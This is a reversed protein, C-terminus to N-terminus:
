TVAVYGAVLIVDELLAGSTLNTVDGTAPLALPEVFFVILLNNAAHAGTSFEIGGLRLTMYAFGVGMLARTLFADPSFDFHAASFMLATFGLLVAPQRTFAATQRLLWGRFMLEEAAAAPILLLASLGYALRGGWDPSIHLIPIPAGRLTMLRDVAVLPAMALAALGIGLFLLRWRIKAAVTVYHHFPHGALVAALAVFVLPFAGDTVTSELLRLLTVNLGKADPDAFLAAAKGLGRLGEDGLGVVITYPVLVLLWCAFAAIFGVCLGGVVTAAIRAPDRDHDTLDAFFASNALGAWVGVSGM